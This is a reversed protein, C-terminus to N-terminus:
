EKFFIYIENGILFYLPSRTKYSNSGRDGGAVRFLISIANIRIITLILCTVDKKKKLGV